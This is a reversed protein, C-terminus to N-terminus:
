RAFLKSSSWNRKSSSTSTFSKESGFSRESSDTLSNQSRESCISKQSNLSKEKSFSEEGGFALEHILSREQNRDISYTKLSIRSNLSIESIESISDQAESTFELDESTFCDDDLGESIDVSLNLDTSDALSGNLSRIDSYDSYTRGRFEPKTIDLYNQNPLPQSKIRKLSIKEESFRKNTKKNFLEKEEKLLETLM